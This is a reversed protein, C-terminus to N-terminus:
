SQSHSTQNLWQIGAIATDDVSEPGRVRELIQAMRQELEGNTEAAVQRLRDLGDDLMEDHREVLGDTYAFLTAGDPISFISPEYSADTEIGIPLGVKSILFEGRGDHVMLPPLHGASTVSVSRAALDIMVCLVTALQGNEHLSRMGSLKPLFAEPPDTQAAYQIAFRLSAMTTAARIGRGSVDGVVLLLRDHGLQILDYWDGGIDVDPAGAHYLTALKVRDIEPLAEPLLAHQLSQAIGRQEAYLRRNERALEQARRRGSILRFTLGGAGITLVFGVIAILVPLRQPLTGGLAQRASVVVTLTESGFPVETSAQRGPLPLHRVTSLLLRSRNATTAIYVAVNVNSYASNAPLKTYRSAPLAQEAEVIFPGSVSGSYAYAIRPQSEHLLGRVTLGSRKAAARLVTTADSTSPLEPEVGAVLVPGAGLDGTRWLSLSVFQKGIGVYPAVFRRFKATSGGTIDALAAAAGLPTQVDPLASTLATGVQKSQLNLLHQENSSALNASVITLCVTVLLGVMVVIAVWSYARQASRVREPVATVSPGPQPEDNGTSVSRAIM